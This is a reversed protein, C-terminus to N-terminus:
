KVVFAVLHAKEATVTKDGSRRYHRGQVTYSGAGLSASRGVVCLAGLDNTGSLFRGIEGYDVSNISIAWAGTANSGGGTSDAEVTMIAVIRATEALTVSFSFGTMNELAAATTSVPAGLTAGNSVAGGDENIDTTSLIAGLATM